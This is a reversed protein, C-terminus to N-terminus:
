PRSQLWVLPDEPKGRVRIEFYLQPGDLSGSEGVTGILQGAQVEQGARILLDALHAYLTYM